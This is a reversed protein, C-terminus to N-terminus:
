FIFDIVVLVLSSHYFIEYKSASESQAPTSARSPNEPQVFVDDESLQPKTKQKLPRPRIRAPTGEDPAVSPSVYCFFMLAFFFPYWLVYM